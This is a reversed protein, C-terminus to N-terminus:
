DNSRPFEKIINIDRELMNVVLGLNILQFRKRILVGWFQMLCDIFREILNSGLGSSKRQGIELIM